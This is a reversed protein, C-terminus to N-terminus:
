RRSHPAGTADIVTVNTIALARTQDPLALPTAAVNGVALVFFFLRIVLKLACGAIQQLRRLRM